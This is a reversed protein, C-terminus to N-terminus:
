EKRKYIEYRIHESEGNNYNFYDFGLEIIEDYIHINFEGLYNDKLNHAIKDLLTAGTMEIISVNREDVFINDYKTVCEESLISAMRTIKVVYQGYININM